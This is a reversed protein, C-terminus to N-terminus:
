LEMEEWLEDGILFAMRKDGEVPEGWGLPLGVQDFPFPVLPSRQRWHVTTNGPVRPFPHFRGFGSVSRYPGEYKLEDNTPWPAQPRGPPLDLEPLWITEMALVSSRFHAFSRGDFAPITPNDKSLTKKKSELRHAARRHAEEKAWLRHKVWQALSCPIFPSRPAVHLCNDRFRIFSDREKAQHSVWTKSATHSGAIDPAM